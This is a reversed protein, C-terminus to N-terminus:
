VVTSLLIVACIRQRGREEMGIDRKSLGPHLYKASADFTLFSDYLMRVYSCEATPVFQMVKLCLDHPPERPDDRVDHSDSDRGNYRMRDM